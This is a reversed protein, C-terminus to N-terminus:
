LTFTTAGLRPPPFVFVGRLTPDDASLRGGDAVAGRTEIHHYRNGLDDVLYMKENGTDSGKDLTAGRLNSATWSATLELRGSATVVVTEICWTLRADGGLTLEACAGDQWYTAVEQAAVQVVSLVGSLVLLSLVRIRVTNM